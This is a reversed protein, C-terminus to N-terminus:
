LPFNRLAFDRLNHYCINEVLQQIQATSSVHRLIVPNASARVNGLHTVLDAQLRGAELMTPYPDLTDIFGEYDSGLSLMKWVRQKEADSLAPQRYIVNAIGEICNWIATINNRKEREPNKANVPVGMIRQDLSLGFIGGTQHILLVDEDSMNINWANLRGTAEDFVDDAENAERRQQEKLTAIGSYGCHSAIVPIVDGKAFCPRVIENYYEERSWSNMHKVDILIRYRESDVKENRSNLSLLKRIMKRGDENFGSTRGESQNLLWEAVNPFSHAHGCLHNYFHHAFTVFFVPHKWTNKVVEVRKLWENISARDTGFSHAGEITLIWTIVEEGLCQELESLNVPVRYIGEADLIQPFRDRRKIKSEFVQRLIGPILIENRRKVGNASVAFAYEEQLASWYDYEPSQFYDIQEKPIRMQYMQLLDRLPLQHHTALHVLDRFFQKSGPTSSEASRVFGRELPYLANFTLRSKGNWQLVLDGQSHAVLSGAKERTDMNSAIITWPDYRGNRRHRKEEAKLWLYSRSHNHCHADAFRM